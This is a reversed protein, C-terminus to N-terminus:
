LKEKRWSRGWLKRRGEVNRRRLFSQAVVDGNLESQPIMQRQKGVHRRREKKRQVEFAEEMMKQWEKRRQDRIAPHWYETVDPVYNGDQDYHGALGWYYYFLM